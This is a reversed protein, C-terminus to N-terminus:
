KLKKILKQGTLHYDLEVQTLQTNISNLNGGYKSIIRVTTGDSSDIITDTSKLTVTYEQKAQDAIGPIYPYVALTPNTLDIGASDFFDKYPIGPWRTSTPLFNSILRMGKQVALSQQKSIIPM